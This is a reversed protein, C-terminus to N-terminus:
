VMLVAQDVENENGDVKFNNDENVLEIQVGLKNVIQAISAKMKDLFFKSKFLSLPKTVSKTKKKYILDKIVSLLENIALQAKNGKSKGLVLLKSRSLQIRVDHM